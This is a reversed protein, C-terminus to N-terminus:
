LTYWSVRPFYIFSLVSIYLRYYMLLMMLQDELLLEKKRGGGTKRQRKLKRLRKLESKKYLPVLEKYLQNFKEVSLGTAARFTRPSKKFRITKTQM